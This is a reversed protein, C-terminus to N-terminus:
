TNDGQDYGGDPTLLVQRGDPLRLPTEEPNAYGSVMHGTLLSARPNMHISKTALNHCEHHVAILNDPTNAGGQSRLKRHHLAFNNPLPKGCHECYGGCRTLVIDRLNM